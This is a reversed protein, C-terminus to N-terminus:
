LSEGKLVKSPCTKESHVMVVMVVEVVVMMVVVTSVVVIVVEVVVLLLFSPCAADWREALKVGSYNCLFQIM